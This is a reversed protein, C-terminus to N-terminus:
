HRALQYPLLKLEVQRQEIVEIICIYPSLEESICNELEGLGKTVIVVQVIYLLTCGNQIM